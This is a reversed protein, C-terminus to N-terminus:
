LYLLFLRRFGHRRFISPADKWFHPEGYQPHRCLCRGCAPCLKSPEQVDDACWAAAFLDFRNVCYPCSVIHAGIRKGAGNASRPASAQAEPFPNM